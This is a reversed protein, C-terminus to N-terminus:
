MDPPVNAIADEITTLGMKGKLMSDQHLTKMGHKMAIKKLEAAEAEENIGSYTKWSQRHQEIAAPDLDFKPPTELNFHHHRDVGVGGGAAGAAVGALTTPGSRDSRREGLRM